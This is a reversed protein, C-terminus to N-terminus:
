IDAGLGDIISLIDEENTNNGSDISNETNLDNKDMDSNPSDEALLSGLESKENISKGDSNNREQSSLESKSKEAKIDEIQKKTKGARVERTGKRFISLKNEFYKLDNENEFFMESFPYMLYIRLLNKIFNNRKGPVIRELMQVADADKDPDLILSKTYAKKLEPMAKDRIPPIKIIFAEGKAFAKICTYIARMIDFDHTFIFTILDLDHVTYFRVTYRLKKM